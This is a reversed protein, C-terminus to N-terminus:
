QIHKLFENRAGNIDRDVTIGCKSCCIKKVGKVDNLHGCLTCTKTTYDEPKVFLNIGERQCRSTLRQRFTFHRWSYLGRVSKNSLVRSKKKVMTKIEFPPIIINSFNSAMHNIAKWHVDDVLHKIKYRLRQQAKQFRKKKQGKLKSTRSVLKDLYRCLRYLRLNDNVGYKYAVGESPSYLTHFTRVGPDLACWSNKDVQNEHVNVSMPVCLYMRGLKDLTLRCDYDVSKLRSTNIKIINKLYTPYIMMGENEKISRISEKPIAISQSDKKKRYKMEFKEGKQFNLKYGNVLDEIAGERVHKPTDLLYRLNSPINCANVFRNRLWFLNIPLKRKNIESLTWNYTKRCCGFWCLLKKYVDPSPKLRVRRTSNPPTKKKKTKLPNLKKLKKKTNEKETSGVISFTSSQLSTKQLSQTKQSSWTQMLFWSNSEMTNFSGNWCNSPLGVCGTEIPCWLKKSNNQCRLNWFPEFVKGKSTSEQVLTTSSGTTLSNKKCTNSKDNSIKKKDPVLSEVTVCLHKKTKNMSTTKMKQIKKSIGQCITSDLVKPLESQPSSVMTQGNESHLKTLKSISELKGLPSSFEKIM